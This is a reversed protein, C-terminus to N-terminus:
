NTLKVSLKGCCTETKALMKGNNTEISEIKNCLPPDELHGYPDCVKLIAPGALAQEVSLPTHSINSDCVFDLSKSCQLLWAAVQEGLNETKQNVKEPMIIINRKVSSLGAELIQSGM